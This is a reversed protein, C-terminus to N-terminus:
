HNRNKVDNMMEIKMLFMKGGKKKLCYFQM